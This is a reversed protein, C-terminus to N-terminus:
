RSINKSKFNQTRRSVIENKNVGNQNRRSKFEPTRKSAIQKGSEFNAKRNPSMCVKTNKQECNTKWEREENNWKRKHDRPRVRMKEM